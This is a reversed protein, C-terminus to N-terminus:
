RMCADPCECVSLGFALGNYIPAYLMIPRPEPVGEELQPVAVQKKKGYWTRKTKTLVQKDDADDTGKEVDTLDEISM